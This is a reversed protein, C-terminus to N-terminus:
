LDRGKAIENVLIELTIGLSIVKSVFSVNRSMIFVCSEPLRGFSSDLNVLRSASEKALLLNEPVTGDSALQV